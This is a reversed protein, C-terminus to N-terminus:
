PESRWRANRTIAALLAGIKEPSLVYRAADLRIAEGPMGHVVSSEQDQAITVAGLDKLHKLEEAGDKGMGTLLVGVASPGCVAAVSRFLYAVSPRLGNEPKEGSLAIQGNAGLGMHHGDPALYAHGPLLPAGQAGIHVPFGTSQSLWKVLGPLFGAAIHQVLLVPVPFDQPLGALITQLVPPGGTSTGIAVVKIPINSPKAEAPPALAAPGAAPRSRPWRKVVKVESMLQVTEVLKGAMNEYEQHGPGVPKAVLAVAGAEMARFTHAVEAPNLSASCVVIPVPQTEMIKRTTEFGDMGSMHIDMVIVDPQNRELCQLAEVGDNATGLVHLRPDSNLIHVLLQQAVPSDEVVLVSIKKDMTM